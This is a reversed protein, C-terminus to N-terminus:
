SNLPTFATITFGMGAGAEAALYPSPGLGGSIRKLSYLLNM